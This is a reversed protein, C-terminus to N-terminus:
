REAGYLENALQRVEDTASDGLQKLYDLFEQQNSMSFIRAKFSLESRLRGQQLLSACQRDVFMADVFPAYTAIATFDNLIGAGINPSQGSSVRWGLAAILYAFIKHAPQEQNGPWDLFKSVENFADQPPVGRHVFMAALQRYRNMLGFRLELVSSPDDSAMAEQTKAVQDRLAERMASGYSSLEHKLIQDFTPRNKAWGEALSKLSTEAVSRDRRLGPAFISYDSDVSIHYVPLWDNRDGSLIDDVNFTLTPPGSGRIYAEAFEWEQNTAIEDTRDFFTEGSFMEHALRLESPSHWVITEDSHLNSAPFIVQQRKYALDALEYCRQWFTASPAGLRRKGEKTKYLESVAFQDLYVVRKDVHPLIEDHSYRCDACRKTVTNDDVSLTGFREKKCKPCKRFPPLEFM